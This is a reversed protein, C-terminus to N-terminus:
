DNGGGEHIGEEQDTVVNVIQEFGLADSTAFGEKILGAVATVIKETM